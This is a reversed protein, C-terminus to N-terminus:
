LSAGKVLNLQKISEADQNFAVSKKCNESITIIQLNALCHLGSVLASVIPIVHDVCHAVGTKETIQKRKTHLERIAAKEAWPPTAQKLLRRKKKCQDRNFDPHAARYIKNGTRHARAYALRAERNEYYYKLSRTM